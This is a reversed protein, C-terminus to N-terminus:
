CQFNGKLYCETGRRRRKEGKGSLILAHTLSPDQLSCSQRSAPLCLHGALQLGLGGQSSSWVPDKPSDEAALSLMNVGFGPKRAKRLSVLSVSGDRELLGEVTCELSAAKHDSDHSEEEDKERFLGSGKHGRGM